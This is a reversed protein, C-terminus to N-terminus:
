GQEDCEERDLCEKMRYYVDGVKDWSADYELRRCLKEMESRTLTISCSDGPSSRAFHRWVQASLGMAVTIFEHNMGHYLEPRLSMFHVCVERVFGDGWWGQREFQDYEEMYQRRDHDSM